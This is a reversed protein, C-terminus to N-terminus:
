EKRSRGGLATEAQKRETIEEVVVSVGISEGSADKVPLWHEVWTRQVGPRAPTEGVLEYNLRAQGTELVEHLGPESSDALMPVVERVTKGLHEVVPIGNIEALRTGQHAPLASRSRAPM